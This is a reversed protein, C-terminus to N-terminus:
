RACGAKCDNSTRHTAYFARDAQRLQKEARLASCVCMGAGRNSLPGAKRHDVWSKCRCHFTAQEAGRPQGCMCPKGAAHLSALVKIAHACPIIVNMYMYIYIHICIYCALSLSLSLSLSLFLFLFLFLFLLLCLFLFLFFSPSLSLSLSLVFLFRFAMLKGGVCLGATARRMGSMCLLLVCKGHRSHGIGETEFAKTM